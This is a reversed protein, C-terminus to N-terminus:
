RRVAGARRFLLASLGWLSCVFLALVAAPALRMAAMGVALLLMLAALAAMVREMGGPQFRVLAAGIAGLSVVVGFLLNARNGPEGIIGVALNIWVTLFAGLIALCIAARQAAGSTRRAAVEYALGVTGLISAAAVFDGATWNFGDVTRNAVTAGLLIAGGTGWVARRWVARRWPRASQAASDM